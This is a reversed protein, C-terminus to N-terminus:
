SAPGGFASFSDKGTSRAPNGVYVLRPQTDRVVVAGAGIVCDVGVTRTDTVCSNVGLFSGRQIRCFGSIVVHSSIFCDREIASQHGVHNGSWLIVNEGVRVMHQLVNHEFIFTNEGIEVNHWVFASSSVYSVCRYGLAKVADYLRRRVRNLQTTSVAVFARYRDPPYAAPLTALDVVPLGRYKDDRIFEADASFAVVEHPSDHTFYEHALAAQEGTGIIVVREGHDLAQLPHLAIGAKRSTGIPALADAFGGRQREHDDTPGGRGSV